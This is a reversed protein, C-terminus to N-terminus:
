VIKFVCVCFQKTKKGTLKNSILEKKVRRDWRPCTFYCQEDKNCFQLWGVTECQVLLELKFRTAQCGPM